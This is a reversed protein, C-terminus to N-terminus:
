LTPARETFWVNGDVGATIQGPIYGPAIGQSYYKLAPKARATASFGALGVFCVVAGLLMFLWIHREAGAARRAHFTDSISDMEIHRVIRWSVLDLSSGSRACSGPSRM